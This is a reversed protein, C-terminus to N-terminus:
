EFRLEFLFGRHFFRKKGDNTNGPGAGRATGDGHKHWKDGAQGDCAHEAEIPHLQGNAAFQHSQAQAGHDGEDGTQADPGGSM